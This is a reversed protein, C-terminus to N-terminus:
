RDRRLLVFLAVDHFAGNEFFHEHFTGERWFGLGRLMRVSATNEANTHAEVRNLGMEGFGHDLVAVMAESALGRGWLRRSLDYGVSARAHPRSWHNYGFLGVVDDGGRLVLGWHRAGHVHHDAALGEVLARADALSRLPPDNHEQEIPDSRFVLLAPADAPTLPRLVLRDTRLVPIVPDHHVV